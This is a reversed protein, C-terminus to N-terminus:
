RAFRYDVLGLQTWRERWAEVSMEGRLYKGTEVLPEFTIEGRTAVVPAGVDSSVTFGNDLLVIGITTGFVAQAWGRLSEDPIQAATQPGEIDECISRLARPERPIAGITLTGANRAVQEATKRWRAIWLANVEDWSIPTVARELKDTILKREIAEANAVLDISPRADLDHVAGDFGELAAIRERLPPHSDYPDDKDEALEGAVVGDLIKMVLETRMFRSFGEGVPPLRGDEVIPLLENRLYMQHALAGGHTKKLGEVLPAVGACRAAVRDASLEQVRSIAQTIRMFATGFWRFPALIVVFLLHAAQHLEAAGKAARALNVITRGLAGRTKYIFPGLRTDGGFFHGMEHALVARLESVGLVRMLPLGLGMVRRSGFGMIGGRQAVFANMDFMLYVHKPMQEGTLESIKAIEAFLVPQEAAIVEPGPPEFKDIRPFMSWVIVGAAAFCALALVLMVLIGNGRVSGLASFLLSGLAVLLVVTGIALAIYIVMLAIALAVRWALTRIVVRHYAM